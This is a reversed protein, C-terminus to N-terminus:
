VKLLITHLRCDIFCIRESPEGISENKYIYHGVRRVNLIKVKPRVRILEVNGEWCKSENTSVSEM